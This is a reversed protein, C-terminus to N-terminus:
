SLGTYRTIALSEDSGADRRVAVVCTPVPPLGLTPGGTLKM